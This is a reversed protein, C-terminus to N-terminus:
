ATKFAGGMPLALQHQQGASAGLVQHNVAYRGLPDLLHHLHIIIYAHKVRFIEWYSTPQFHNFARSIWFGVAFSGLYVWISLKDELIKRPTWGRQGVFWWDNFQMLNRESRNGLQHRRLLVLHIAWHGRLLTHNGWLCCGPPRSIGIKTPCLSANLMMWCMKFWDIWFFALPSAFTVKFAIWLSRLFDWIVRFPFWCTLLKLSQTPLTGLNGAPLLVRLVSACKSGRSTIGNAVVVLMQQLLWM